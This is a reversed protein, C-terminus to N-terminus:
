GSNQKIGCTLAFVLGSHMVLVNVYAWTSLSIKLPLFVLFSQHYDRVASPQSTEEEKRGWYCSLPRSGCLTAVLGRRGQHRDMEVFLPFRSKWGKFRPQGTGASLLSSTSTISWAGLRGKLFAPLKQKRVRPARSLPGAARHLSLGVPPPVPLCIRSPPRGAWVVWAVM